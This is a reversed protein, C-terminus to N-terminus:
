INETTVPGYSEQQDGWYETMGLYMFSYVNVPESGKRSFFWCGAGIAVATVLSIVPILVKRLKRKGMM